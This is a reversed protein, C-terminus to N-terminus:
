DTNKKEDDDDDEDVLDIVKPNKKVIRQRKKPPEQKEEELVAMARPRKQGRTPQKVFNKKGRAKKKPAGKEDDDDDMLILDDDAAAALAKKAARKEAQKAKKAAERDFFFARIDPLEYDPYLYPEDDGSETKYCLKAYGKKEHFEIRCDILQWLFIRFIPEPEDPYDADEPPLQMALLEVGCLGIDNYGPDLSIVRITGANMQERSLPAADSRKEGRKRRPLVKKVMLKYLDIAKRLATLCADALDHVNYDHKEAKQIFAKMKTANYRSAIGRLLREAEAKNELRRKRLRKDVESALLTAGDADDKKPNYDAGRTMLYKGAAAQQLRVQEILHRGPYKRDEAYFFTAVKTKDVFMADGDNIVQEFSEGLQMMHTDHWHTRAGGAGQPERTAV